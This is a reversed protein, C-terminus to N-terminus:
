WNGILHAEEQVTGCVTHHERQTVRHGFGVLEAFGLEGSQRGPEKLDAARTVSVTEPM